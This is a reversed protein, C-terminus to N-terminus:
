RLTRILCLKIPCCVALVVEEDDAVAVLVILFARTAVPTKKSDPCPWRATM